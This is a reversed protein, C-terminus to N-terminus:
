HRTRRTYGRDLSGGEKASLASSYKYSVEAANNSGIVSGSGFGIAACTILLVLSFVGILTQRNTVDM